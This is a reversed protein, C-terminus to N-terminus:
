TPEFRSVDIGTGVPLLVSSIGAKARHRLPSLLSDGNSSASPTERQVDIM